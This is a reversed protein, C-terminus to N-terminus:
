ADEVIKPLRFEDGTREPANALAAERDTFLPHPTRGAAAFEAVKGAEVPFEFTALVHGAAQENM